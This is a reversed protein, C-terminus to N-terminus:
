DKNKCFRISALTIVIILLFTIGINYYIYNLVEGDRFINVSINVLYNPLYKGFRFLDFIALLLTTGIALMISMISSKFLVSYLNTISIIFFMYVYIALFSLLSYQILFENFLVYNYVSFLLCSVLYIVTFVEAQVKVKAMVFNRKKVGNNLLNNYIGRRRENVILGGFVIILAFICTGAINGVFQGYSDVITPEPMIIQVSDGLAKLIDPTVKALIPSALAFAVFICFLILIKKTRYLEMFDKKVLIWFQKM